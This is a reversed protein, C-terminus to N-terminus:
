TKRSRVTEVSGLKSHVRLRIISGRLEATFGFGTALAGSQSGPRHVLEGDPRDASYRPFKM